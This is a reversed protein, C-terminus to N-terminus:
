NTLCLSLKVKVKKGFFSPKRKKLQLSNQRAFLFICISVTVALPTEMRLTTEFHYFKDGYMDNQTFNKERKYETLM